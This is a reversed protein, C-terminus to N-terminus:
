RMYPIRGLRIQGAVYKLENKAFEEPNEILRQATQIPKVIPEAVKQLQQKAFQKVREPNQRYVDIGINAVDAATSVAEGIPAAPPIYSAVDAALSTGALGAQLQDMMAGTEEALKSRGQFEAASAATGLPGLAAVGAAALGTLAARNLRISGNAAALRAAPKSTLDKFDSLAEDISSGFPVDIGPQQSTPQFKNHFQAPILKVDGSVDDIDVVVNEGFKSYAKAEITDKFVKFQPDSISMYESSGGSALRVDHEAISPKGEAAIQHILSESETKAKVKLKRLQASEEPTKPKEAKSRKAQYRGYSATSALSLRGGEKVRIKFTSGNEKFFGIEETFGTLSNNEKKFDKAAKLYEDKTGKFYKM